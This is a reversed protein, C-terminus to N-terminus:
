ALKLVLVGYGDLDIAGNLTKGTLLDTMPRKLDIQAPTKLYNLVFAFRHDEDGRVTLECGEPLMLSDALPEAAGLKKLFVAASAEIFATGYYYAAGKGVRHSVLVGSGAYYDSTYIAECVGGNIPAVLDTFVAAELTEGDWDITVAGADPAIFSYEPIDAGCLDSLLGPLRDMVCKGTIDKYASRCGFVVTGGNEVYRTLMAAREPTMIGPHPYFLLDYAQLQDPDAHDLYVYDLPAHAHQAAAFIAMESQWAVREHWRDLRADWANDYDKVLAVKSLCKKGAVPALNAVKEHIDRVERLRRNERGSYDLIGHWYMETGMVATRWRFYSVFDAGHAISQMTWLTIQGPRPTPAEMRTNWGNAGSQQEMIGFIPSVSRTETLNRSWRRDRLADGARYDDLCYAFNPYSDYTYFDLSEATMQHNDLNGFMGNTTIFDSPKIHRRLIDSQLKCFSRAIASVFRSFDLVEHPNTSNHLTRRPVHIQDWDTYTQNWFVTGWAENLADLAGYKDKLFGRFAVSDAESYFEDTECNIENDIQWGIICARKGYHAGLKEVIRATLERYVPANYNYHRRAGHRYPIGDIDCNLIEPYKETLWAPPTATPTGFIVKMGMEDCLDLFRDFFDFRFVGEEPETITWAFEAIRVVEIGTDLMRTLDERWMAEPWHEPYYCVGLVMRKGDLIASM